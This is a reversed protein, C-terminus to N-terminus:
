ARSAFRLIAWAVVRGGSTITAHVRGRDGRAAVVLTEQPTARHRFVARDVALPPERSDALQAALEVMLAVLAAGPLLPEGPFHGACLARARAPRVRGM